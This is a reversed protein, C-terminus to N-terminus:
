PSYTALSDCKQKLASEFKDGEAIWTLTFTRRHSSNPHWECTDWDKPTDAGNGRVIKLEYEAKSKCFYHHLAVKHRTIPERFAYTVRDKNEGVTYMSSNLFFNHPSETKVYYKTQVFSKIHKNDSAAGEEGDQICSTYAERVGIAPKELLGHSDHIIWQVGLAGYDEYGRLLEAMSRGPKDVIELFEDADLFGIWRHRTGFRAHCEDYLHYQMSATRKERTFYRFSIASRPIPYDETNDLAPSSGDDMMYFRRIGLHHYHHSFWEKLDSAQDKVAVCIAVYEEEDPKSGPWINQVLTLTTGIPVNL